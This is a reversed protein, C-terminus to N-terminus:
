AFAEKFDDEYLFGFYDKVFERGSLSEYASILGLLSFWVRELAEKENKNKNERHVFLSINVDEGKKLELIEVDDKNFIIGLSNGIKKIKKKM